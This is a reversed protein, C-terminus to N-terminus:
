LFVFVLSFVVFAIFVIFVFLCGNKKEFRETYVIATTSKTPPQSKMTTMNTSAKTGIRPPKNARPILEGPLISLTNPPM